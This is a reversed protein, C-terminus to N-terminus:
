SILLSEGPCKFIRWLTMLDISSLYSSIKESITIPIDCELRFLSKYREDSTKMLLKRCKMKAVRLSLVRSFYPFKDKTDSYKINELDKSHVFTEIACMSKTLIDYCSVHRRVEKLKTTELEEKLHNYVLHLYKKIYLLDKTNVYKGSAERIIIALIIYFASKLVGFKFCYPLIFETNKSEILNFNSGRLAIALPSDGGRNLACVDAGYATLVFITDIAKYEAALHFPTNGVEDQANIDAGYDLLLRLREQDRSRFIVKRFLSDIRKLYFNAGKKLLYLVANTDGYSCFAHSLPTCNRGRCVSNVDAGYEVLKEIISLKLGEILAFHLSLVQDSEIEVAAGQELILEIMKMNGYYLAVELVTFTRHYLVHNNRRDWSSYCDHDVIERIIKNHQSYMLPITSKMTRANVDAGKKLLLKVLQLEGANVATHLLTYNGHNHKDLSISTAVNLDAGQDLLYEVIEPFTKNIAVELASKGAFKKNLDVGHQLLAKLVPLHRKEVTMHLLPKTIQEESKKSLLSIVLKEVNTIKCHLADYDAESIM